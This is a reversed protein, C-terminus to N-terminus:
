YLLEKNDYIAGGAQCAPCFCYKGGDAKVKEGLKVANAAAEEGFIKKGADSKAFNLTEDISNVHKELAAILEDATKADKAALYNEAAAKVAPNVTPAAILEEVKSIMEQKNM